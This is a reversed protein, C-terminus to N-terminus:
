THTSKTKGCFGVVSLGWVWTQVAVHHNDKVRHISCLPVYCLSECVSLLFVRVVVRVCVRRCM